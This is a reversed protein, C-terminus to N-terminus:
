RPPTSPWGLLLGDLVLEPRVNAELLEGAGDLRRLFAGVAAAGPADRGASDAGAGSTRRFAAAATRLDDILAPDRVQREEGLVSVALDRALERWLAVLILAARRREAAPVATRRGGVGSAEDAEADAEDGADQSGSSGPSPQADAPV